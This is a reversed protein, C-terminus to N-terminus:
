RDKLRYVFKLGSWDEDVACIKVDVLGIALGADRVGSETLDTNKGSSKKYWSVWLIGDKKLDKKCEPLFHELAAVSKAFLHIFDYPPNGGGKVPYDTPPQILKVSQGEKLGLKKALMHDGPLIGYM